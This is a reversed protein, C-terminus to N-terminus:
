PENCVKQGILGWPALNCPHLDSLVINNAATKYLPTLMLDSTRM